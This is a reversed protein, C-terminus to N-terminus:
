DDGIDIHNDNWEQEPFISEKAKSLEEETFPEIDGFLDDEIELPHEKKKVIIEKNDSLELEVPMNDGLDLLKRWKQPITIRGNSTVNEVVKEGVTM